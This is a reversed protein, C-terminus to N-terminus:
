GQSNSNEECYKRIKQSISASEAILDYMLAKEEVTPYQDLCKTYFAQNERAKCFCSLLLDMNKQPPSDIKYTVENQNLLLAPIESSQGQFQTTHNMVMSFVEAETPNENTLHQFEEKLLAIAGAVHPAAMSTGSLSAFDGDIHTSLVKVGPAYLDINENTNTFDAIEKGNLAGVSIVEQYAGPYRYENTDVKGDGDNGSAVVVAIDHRVARKVADHLKDNPQRSGLSLSIATVKENDPGRWDVAYHIAEILSLISGNGENNLVKLILLKADPAVGIVGTGNKKAAIIGAVHTGHGNRDRIIQIDGGDDSTFNYGGIIQDQFDPHNVDCGTDLVAIVVGKGTFGKSWKAEAGIERINAPIEEAYNKIGQYQVPLLKVTPKNM